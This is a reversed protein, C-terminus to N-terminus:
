PDKVYNNLNEEGMHKVLQQFLHKVFYGTSVTTQIKDLRITSLVMWSITDTYLLQAFYKAVNQLTVTDYSNVIAYTDIFMKELPGILLRNIQCFIQFSFM